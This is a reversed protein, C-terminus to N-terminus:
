ISKGDKKTIYIGDQFIRIDRNRVKTAAEFNAATQGAIEKDVSKITISDKKIEVEAGDLIPCSREVKEGFFNKISAKNGEIKVTIPFHGSCIKLEYEFKEKVGRMMNKIHAGVTNALKKERKTSKEHGIIIKGDKQVIECKGVNFEKKNEGEPGKVEIFEDEIKVEVGEPIEIEQYFPKRM